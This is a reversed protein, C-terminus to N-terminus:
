AAPPCSVAAPTSEPERVPPLKLVRRLASLQELETATFRIRAWRQSARALAGFVLKLCSKENFFRPIIKTRRREEVFARELLNTTRVNQRLRAPLKLHNLSATLDHKLCAMASPYIQEYRAIVEAARAQGQEFTAADRITWIEARVQTVVEKPLKTEINRMKHAWCHIRLSNPYAQEIAAILGPAGDATISLPVVLGREIMSRIMALWAETSENNGLALHLLVKRGDRLIGWACLVGEKIGAELRLAEYVADLFLCELEFDALSRQQFTQYEDWLSETIESVTSRSLIREGTATELADEIDRTSLGRAYLEVALRELEVTRRGMQAWLRSRFPTESNRVQPLAVPVKGESTKLTGPEYGNRWGGRGPKHEYHERGLFDTQEGELLEQLLHQLALRTFRPLPTDASETRNMGTLIEDIEKRIRESPTIKKM